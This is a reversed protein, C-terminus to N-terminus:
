RERWVLREKLGLSATRNPNASLGALEQAKRQRERRSEAGSDSLQWRARSKCYPEPIRAQNGMGTCCTPAKDFFSRGAEQAEMHELSHQFEDSKVHASKSSM